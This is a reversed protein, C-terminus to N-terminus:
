KTQANVKFMDIIIIKGDGNIQFTFNSDNDGIRYKGVIKINSNGKEIKDVVHNKVIPLQEMASKLILLAVDGTNGSVSVSQHVVPRLSDLNKSKSYKFFDDM